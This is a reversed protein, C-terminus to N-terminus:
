QLNRGTFFWYLHNFKVSNWNGITLAELSIIRGFHADLTKLLEGDELKWVYINKRCCVILNLLYDQMFYFFGSLLYLIFTKTGSLVTM